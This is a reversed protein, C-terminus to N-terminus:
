RNIKAQLRDHMFEEIMLDFRNQDGSRDMTCPLRPNSRAPVFAQWDVPKIIAKDTRFSQYDGGLYSYLAFTEPLDPSSGINQKNILPLNTLEKPINDYYEDYILGNITSSMAHAFEHLPTKLRNDWASYAILGPVRAYPAHHREFGSEAERYKLSFAPGKVSEEDLTYLASSRTHTPSATVAFVVDVAPRDNTKDYLMSYNKLFNRLREEEVIYAGNDKQYIRQIPEIIVDFARELCLANRKDFKKGDSDIPQARNPDFLTIIRMNDLFEQRIMSNRALSGIICAVKAQFLKPHELIPDPRWRQDEDTPVIESELIPNAIIAITYPPGSGATKEGDSIIVPQNRSTIAEADLLKVGCPFPARLRNYIYAVILGFLFGHASGYILGLLLDGAGFPKSYGPYFIELFQTFSIALNNMGLLTMVVVFLAWVIGFTIGVDLIALYPRETPQILQSLTSREDLLRYKKAM